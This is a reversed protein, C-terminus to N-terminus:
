PGLSRVRRDRFGAPTEGRPVPTDPERELERVAQAAARYAANAEDLVRQSAKTPATDHRLKARDFTQQAEALRRGADAAARERKAEPSNVRKLGGDRYGPGPADNGAFNSKAPPDVSPALYTPPEESQAIQTEDNLGSPDVPEEPTGSPDPAIVPDSIEGRLPQPPAAMEGRPKGVALFQYLNTGHPGKGEDIKMRGEEVFRRVCAQAHRVSCRAKRAITEIGPFCRGKDDAFDALALEVLLERGESASTEWVWSM